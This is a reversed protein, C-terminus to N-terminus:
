KGVTGAISEFIKIRRSFSRILLHEGGKAKTEDEVPEKMLKRIRAGV